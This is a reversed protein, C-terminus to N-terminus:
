TNEWEKMAQEIEDLRRTVDTLEILKLAQRILGEAANLRTQAGNEPDAMIEGMIRVADSLRGEAANTANTLIEAKVQSLKEKFEPTRTREYFSRESLGAAAAAARNNASSFMAAILEEDTVRM